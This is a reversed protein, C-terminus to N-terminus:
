PESYGVSMLRDRRVTEASAAPDSRPKGCREPRTWTADYLELESDPYATVGDIGASRLRAPLDAPGEAPVSM